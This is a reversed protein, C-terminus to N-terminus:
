LDLDDLYNDIMKIFVKYMEVKVKGLYVYGLIVVIIELLLMFSFFFYYFKLLCMNERLVGLCGIFFILFMIIGVGLLIVVLDIIM